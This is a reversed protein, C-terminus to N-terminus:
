GALFSARTGLSIRQSANRILERSIASCNPQVVSFPYFHLQHYEDTLFCSFKARSANVQLRLLPLNCGETRSYLPFHFRLDVPDTKSCNHQTKSSGQVCLVAYLGLLSLWSSPFSLWPLISGCCIVCRSNSQISSWSCPFYLGFSPHPELWQAWPHCSLIGFPRYERLLRRKARIDSNPVQLKLSHVHFYLRINNSGHVHVNRCSAVNALRELYQRRVM